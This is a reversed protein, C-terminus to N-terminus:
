SVVVVFINERAAKAFTVLLLQVSMSWMDGNIANIAFQKKLAISSTTSRQFVFSALPKILALLTTIVSVNADSVAYMTRTTDIRNGSM